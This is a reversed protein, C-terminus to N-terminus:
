QRSSAPHGKSVRPYDGHMKRRKRRFATPNVASSNKSSVIIGGRGVLSTVKNGQEKYHHYCEWVARAYADSLDDHAGRKNPARVLVRNKSRREAELLLLEPVLIPHDWLDLLGDLYLTTLLNYIASNMVDTVNEMHFQTMKHTHLIEMLSYGNNQDFWGSKIPFWKHAEEIERVIDNLRLLSDYSYRGCGSYLGDEFDWVDSSGSFWVDAYDLTIKKTAEDRHVIAVATGDNKFGVDVGMFYLVGNVGRSPGTKREKSVCRKFREPEEIWAVISDSFEAGYECTFQSKNRRMDSKLDIPDIDPNMLASHMQFMLVHDTEQFSQNYRDYFIGYKAYPSSIAVIRGTGKFSARSPTLAQWVSTGSFRGNNDIFHALEDFILVINNKGRLTSSSSGNARVVITAHEKFREISLDADTKVNFYNQTENISRDRLYPCNRFFGLIMDFTVRAVEDSPAVNTVMIPTDPPFGYYAVPDMLKLLKYTEYCSIIAALTSNHSVLSGGIIHTNHVCLDVTDLWGEQEVSEVVDWLVDSSSMDRLFDDGVNDGYRDVKDRGPSYQKRLRENDNRSVAGVLQMNNLGNQSQVAEVHKWIGKPLTCLHRKPTVSELVEVVQQLADEKDFIGIQSAFVLVDDVSSMELVWADFVKGDCKSAKYRSSSHIGFKLLLHQVGDIFDKSASCFGVTAKSRSHGVTLESEVTAWGDCAFLRSLFAATEAKSAKLICDPVSKDVAKKGFCGERKLWEKVDNVQPGFKGRKKVVEYSYRHSSKGKNRVTYEPFEDAILAKFDDLQKDSATTLVVNHTTGCDGQLYGLLKAKGLGPGDCGFLPLENSVAIRDGKQVENLRVFEPKAWIDRWVLYPHNWSSVEEKGMKTRIRGCEKVGNSWIEYDYTVRRQLTETDYTLIGIREHQRALLEGFTMSGATTVIVDESSRCKGGRRGCALILERFTKGELENTNCLGEDYLWQLFRQETCYFLTKDNTLNPVRIVKETDDLPVGYFGKLIFKQVPRMTQFNLGWPSEVFTIIDATEGSDPTLFLEAIEKISGETTPM